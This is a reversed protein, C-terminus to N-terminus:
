LIINSLYYSFIKNRKELFFENIGNDYSSNTLLKVGKIINGEYSIINFRGKYQVFVGSQMKRQIIINIVPGTQLSSPHSFHINELESLLLWSTGILNILENDLNKNDLMSWVDINFSKTIAILYALINSSNICYDKLEKDLKIKIDKVARKSKVLRQKVIRLNYSDTERILSSIINDCLVNCIEKYMLLDKDLLHCLIYDKVYKVLSYHFPERNSFKSIYGIFDTKEGYVHHYINKINNYDCVTIIKDFNYKNDEGYSNNDFHASFVNLIRFIHAPDIRDLDEIILVVEKKSSKKYDSIINYILQSITDFENISGKRYNFDKIFKDAKEEETENIKKEWEKYGDSISKIGKCINGLNIDLGCFNFQPIIQILNGFVEEYNQSLYYASKFSKAYNIKRNIIAKESLLRLLIDRKILEFIEGNGMVQYNVPYITIFLYEKSYMQTFQNLFYSKGDGFKASLICRNDIEIYQKFQRCIPEVDIIEENVDNM